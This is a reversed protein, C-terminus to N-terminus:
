EKVLKKVYENFEPNRTTALALVTTYRKRTM